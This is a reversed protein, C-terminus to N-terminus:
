RDPMEIVIMELINEPHVVSKAQALDIVAKPRPEGYSDYYYLQNDVLCKTPSSVCWLTRYCM